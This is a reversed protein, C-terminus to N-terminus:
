DRLRLHSKDRNRVTGYRFSLFHSSINTSITFDILVPQFHNFILRKVGHENVQGMVHVTIDEDRTRFFTQIDDDLFCQRIGILFTEIHDLGGLLILNTCSNTMRLPIMSNELSGFRKNLCM